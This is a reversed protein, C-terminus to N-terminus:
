SLPLDKVWQTLGPTSGMDEHISTLKVVASGSCSSWPMKNFHNKIVLYPQKAFLPKKEGTVLAVPRHSSEQIALVTRWTSDPVVKNLLINALCPQVPLFVPTSM